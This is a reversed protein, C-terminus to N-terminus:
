NIPRFDEVSAQIESVDSVLFWWTMQVLLHGILFLYAFYLSRHRLDRKNQFWAVQCKAHM